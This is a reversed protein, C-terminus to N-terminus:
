NSGDFREILASANPGPDAGEVYGQAGAGPDVWSGGIPPLAAIDNATCGRAALAQMEFAPPLASDWQCVLRSNGFSAEAALVRRYSMRWNERFARLKANMIIQPPPAPIGAPVIFPSCGRGSWGLLSSYNRCLTGMVDKRAIALGYKAQSPHEAAFAQWVATQQRLAAEKQTEQQAMRAAQAQQEQAQASGQLGPIGVATLQRASCGTLAACWLSAAALVLLKKM